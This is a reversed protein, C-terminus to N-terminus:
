AGPWAEHVSRGLESEYGAPLRLATPPGGPLDAFTPPCRYVLPQSIDVAGGIFRARSFCVEGGIFRASTFSVDGGTFQARSFSVKGATFQARNFSVAGGTFLAGSFFVQGGTFQARNFSVAGATFEAGSFFVKGGTLQASSFSVTGGIFQARSFSVTGGAFRARSFSVKGGAFRAGSFSVDGDAFVAGIFFVTGGTFQAGEFTGGDFVAGTFDFDHGRWHAAAEAQLHNSILRIVTHRVQREEHPDRASTPAVSARQLRQRPKALTGYQRGTGRPVTEPDAPPTYPMRLYACLVDICVQQGDEWDDALEALAYVGALRVAAKDSGLQDAAKGFRDTYLRTDERYEAAESHRQRRYAVTLAVVAGIGGVVTLILKIADFRETTGITPHEGSPAPIPQPVSAVLPPRGMGVWLLAGVGVAVITALTLLLAVHVLLPLRPAPPRRRRTSVQHRASQPRTKAAGPLRM